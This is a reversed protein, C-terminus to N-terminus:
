DDRRERHYTEDIRDLIQNLHLLAGRTKKPPLSHNDLKQNLLERVKRARRLREEETEGEIQDVMIYFKKGERFRLILVLEDPTTYLLPFSLFPRSM